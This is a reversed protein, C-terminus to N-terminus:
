NDSSFSSNILFCYKRATRANAYWADNTRGTGAFAIIFVNTFDAKLNMAHLLIQVQIYFIIYKTIMTVMMPPPIAAGNKMVGKQLQNFYNPNNIFSM